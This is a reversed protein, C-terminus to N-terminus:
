KGTRDPRGNPDPVFPQYEDDEWGTPNKYEAKALLEKIMEPHPNHYETYGHWKARFESLKKRFKINEKDADFPKIKPDAREFYHVVYEPKINRQLVQQGMASDKHTFTDWQKFGPGAFM